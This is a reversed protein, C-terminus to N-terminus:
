MAQAEVYMTGSYLAPPLGTVGTLNLGLSLTDVHLGAANATTIPVTYITLSSGAGFPSTTNFATATTAADITANVASSPINHGSGDTLAATASTFYGYINLTTGSSLAWTTTVTVPIGTATLGLVNLNGFAAINPAVIVSISNLITASLSVGVATSTTTSADAIVSGSALFAGLCILAAPSSLTKL